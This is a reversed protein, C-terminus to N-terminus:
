DKQANVNKEQEVAAIGEIKIEQLSKNTSSGTIIGTLKLVGDIRIGMSRLKAVIADMNTRQRKNVTAIFRM